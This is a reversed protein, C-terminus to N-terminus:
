IRGTGRLVKRAEDVGMAGPKSAGALGVAGFLVPLLSAAASLLTAERSGVPLYRAGIPELEGVVRALTRVSVTTDAGTARAVAEAAAHATASADNIATAQSPALLALVPTVAAIGSAILRADSALQSPTISCATFLLVLAVLARKM